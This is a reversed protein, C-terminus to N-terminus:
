HISSITEPTQFPHVQLSFENSVPETFFKDPLQIVFATPFSM